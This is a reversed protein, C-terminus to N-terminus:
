TKKSRQYNWRRERLTMAVHVTCWRAFQSRTINLKECEESVLDFEERSLATRISNRLQNLSNLGRARPIYSPIPITVTLRDQM